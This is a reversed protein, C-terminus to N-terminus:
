PRKHKWIFKLTSKKFETIFPIKIPVANLMYVAKPLIAMKVMNIRVIWSCLLYRWRRYDEEIEKKLSKYLDNVDNYLDNVDKPKKKKKKSAIAFPITEM